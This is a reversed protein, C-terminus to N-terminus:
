APFKHQKLREILKQPHIPKAILEFQHGRRYGEQLIDSVGAQGSVLLIATAPYKKRITIALEMGNMGPMLVDSLLLNPHFRSAVELAQWGDYAPVSDFGENRLIEALSDAILKQDDVVLIRVRDQKVAAAEDAAWLSEPRGKLPEHGVYMGASDGDFTM